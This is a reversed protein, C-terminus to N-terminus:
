RQTREYWADFGLVVVLAGIVWYGTWPEGIGRIALIAAIGQSVLIGLKIKIKTGRTM